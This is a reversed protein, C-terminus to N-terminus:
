KVNSASEKPRADVLVIDRNGTLGLRACINEVRQFEGDTTFVIVAIGYKTRNAEKYIGLQNKLNQELKKNSALKFEVLCIDGSGLSIKVDVPGRGNNPEFNVDKETAYWVLGFALQVQKELVHMEARTSFIRYGDRKEIYEKFFQVRQRVEELSSQGTKYFPTASLGQIVEKVLIRSFERMEHLSNRALQIADDKHNEKHLIYWDIIAPNTAIFNIFHQDRQRAAMPHEDDCVSAIMKVLGEKLASDGITEPLHTLDHVLGSKNIWTDDRTLMDEPTLIVYGGKWCPLDYKGSCWCKKDFDFYAKQVGFVKRQDPRLYQRAFMQTYELLYGKILNATFDSICDCGVGQAIVCLKELHSSKSITENGFNSLVSSLNMQLASAFRPGLGRGSNGKGCFGMFLEKVEPFRFYTDLTFKGIIRGSECLTKLFRLYAIIGEHLRNYEEKASAYLQFPDIFVPLDGLLCVDFAGYDQLTKEGVEFVESFYIKTFDNM